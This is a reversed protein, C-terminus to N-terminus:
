ASPATLPRTPPDLPSLSSPSSRGSRVRPIVAQDDWPSKIQPLAMDDACPSFVAKSFMDQWDHGTEMPSSLPTTLTSSPSTNRTDSEATMLSSQTNSWTSSSSTRTNFEDQSSSVCDLCCAGRNNLPRINPRVYRVDLESTAADEHASSSAYSPSMELMYAPSSLRHAPIPRYFSQSRRFEKQRDQSDAEQDVLVEFSDPSAPVSQQLLTSRIAPLHESRPSNFSSRRPLAVSGARALSAAKRDSLSKSTQAKLMAAFEGSGDSLVKASTPRAPASDTVATFFSRDDLSIPPMPPLITMHGITLPSVSGHWQRAALSLPYLYQQFQEFRVPKCIMGNMGVQRYLEGHVDGVNTTVAVIHANSNPSLIGDEGARIRRTCEVGNLYPMEIDMFILDFVDARLAQIAKLGSDLAVPPCALLHSFRRKLLTSLVALNVHNDDVVLIRLSNPSRMPSNAGLRATNPATM